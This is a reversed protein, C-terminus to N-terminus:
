RHHYCFAVGTGGLVFATPISCGALARVVTRSVSAHRRGSGGHVHLEHVCRRQEGGLLVRIEGMADDIESANFPKFLLVDGDVGHDTLLWEDDSVSKIPAPAPAASVTPAQSLTRQLSWAYTPAVRFGRM